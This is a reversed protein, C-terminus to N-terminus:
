SCLHEMEKRVLGRHPLFTSLSASYLSDWQILLLPILPLCDFEKVSWENLLIGMQKSEHCHWNLVNLAPYHRKQQVNCRSQFVGIKFTAFSSLSIVFCLNYESQLHICVVSLWLMRYFLFFMLVKLLSLFLVNRTKLTCM